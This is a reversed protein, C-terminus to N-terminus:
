SFDCLLIEIKKGLKDAHKLLQVSQSILHKCHLLTSSAFHLCQGCAQPCNGPSSVQSAHTRTFMDPATSKKSPGNTSRNVPQNEMQVKCMLGTHRLEQRLSEAQSQMMTVQQQQGAQHQSGILVPPGGVESKKIFNQLAIKFAAIGMKPMLRRSKVRMINKQNCGGTEQDRKIKRINRINSKVQKEVQQPVPSRFHRREKLEDEFNGM